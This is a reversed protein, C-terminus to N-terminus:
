TPGILAAAFETFDDLDITGAGTMNGPGCGGFLSSRDFCRQFAAFDDMDQDGDFDFDGDGYPLCQDAGEECWTGPGCPNGSSQCDLVPDCTEVGDCFLGNECPGDNPVSLCTENVEDCLDLTCSVGDSCDIPTGAQCDGVADCTETGTCYVGDDCHADNPVNDCTDTTENCSDDTCGVGDDCNVPTGAQCDLLADCIEAGDCFVGNDCPGDNPVN